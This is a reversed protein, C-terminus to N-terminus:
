PRIALLKALEEHIEPMQDALELWAVAVTIFLHHTKSTSGTAAGRFELFTQTTGFGKENYRQILSLLEIAKPLYFEATVALPQEGFLM